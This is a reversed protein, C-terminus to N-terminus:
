SIEFKKAKIPRADKQLYSGKKDIGDNEKVSIRYISFTWPKREYFFFTILFHERSGIRVLM